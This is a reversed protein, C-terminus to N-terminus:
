ELGGGGAWGVVIVFIYKLNPNMTFFFESVGGGMGGGGMFFTIKSIRLLFFKFELGRGRGGWGWM